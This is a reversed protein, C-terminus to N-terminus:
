DDWRKVADLRKFVEEKMVNFDVTKNGKERFTLAFFIVVFVPFILLELLQKKELPVGTSFLLCAYFIWGAFLLLFALWKFVTTYRDHVSYIAVKTKGDEAFIEGRIYYSRENNRSVPNSVAFRGKQDCFFVLAKQMSDEERCVGRLEVIRELVIDLPMDLEVVQKDLVKLYRPLKM